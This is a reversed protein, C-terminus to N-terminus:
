KREAKLEESTKAGHERLLTIMDTQENNISRDLPTNGNRDRVNVDAGKLILSKALLFHVKVVTHELPTIGFKDKVNIEAGESILLEAIEIHNYAAAWHLPTERLRIGKKNVDEGASLYNRVAEIDGKIVAKHLSIEPSEPSSDSGCGALLVVAITTLLLRKM